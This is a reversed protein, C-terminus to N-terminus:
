ATVTFWKSGLLRNMLRLEDNLEEFKRIEEETKNAHRLIQSPDIPISSGHPNQWEPCHRHLWQPISGRIHGITKAADDLVEIERESLVGLNPEKRLSVLHTKTKPLIADNWEIQYAEDGKGKLLDYITSVIPGKDMSALSDGTISKGWKILANRDAWYLKKILVFMHESGGKRSILYTTAAIAKKIDFDLLM